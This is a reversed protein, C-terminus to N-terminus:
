KKDKIKVLCLIIGGFLVLATVAFMIWASVPM